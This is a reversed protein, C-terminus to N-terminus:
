FFKSTNDFNKEIALFFYAINHHVLTQEDKANKKGIITILANIGLPSCGNNSMRTPTLPSIICDCFSLASSVEM